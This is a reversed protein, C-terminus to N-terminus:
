HLDHKDNIIGTAAYRAEEIKPIVVLLYEQQARGMNVEKEGKFAKISDLSHM